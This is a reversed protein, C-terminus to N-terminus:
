RDKSTSDHKPFQINMKERQIAIGQPRGRIKPLLERKWCSSRQIRPMNSGRPGYGAVDSREATRDLRDEKLRRRRRLLHQVIIIVVVTMYFLLETPLGELLNLAM